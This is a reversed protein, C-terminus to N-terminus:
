LNDAVEVLTILLQEAVKRRGVINLHGGDDTFESAMVYVKQTGKNTHCRLGSPDISEVLALDFLPETKGYEDTLLKNYRERMINDDLVGPKGVLSKISQKLGGVASKPLSRIPVTFHLFITRPYRNKLRDMTAVYHDSIEVHDTDGFIDIYCFKFFAIDIVDGIGSDMIEEFNRIKSLPDTNRGVQTHAFIPQGFQEPDFTEVLNLDICNYDKLVDKMGDIINYGVSQHGFFIKLRNLRAWCNRPIDEIKSLIIKNEDIETRM